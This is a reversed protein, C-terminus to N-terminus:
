LEEHIPKADNESDENKLEEQQQESDIDIPEEGLDFNLNNFDFEFNPPIEFNEKEEEIVEPTPTPTPTRIRRKQFRNVTNQLEAMRSYLDSSIWVPDEFPQKKAQEEQQSELWGELDRIEQVLEDREGEGVNRETVITSLIELVTDKWEHFASAVAPRMELESSRLQMRDGVEKLAGLKEQYEELSASAGDDYLWDGAELLGTSFLEREDETTVSKIGEEELADLMTYVYSELENKTAERLLRQEDEHNLKQLVDRSTLIDSESLEIINETQTYKLQLIRRKTTLQTEFEQEEVIEENEEEIEEQEQEEEEIVEGEETSGEEEDKEGEENEEEDENIEGEEAEEIIINDENESEIVNNDDVEVEKVIPVVEEVYEDIRIAAETLSIVGRADIDFRVKVTPEEALEINTFDPFGSIEFSGLKPSVGSSLIESDSYFTNCNFTDMALVNKNKHTRLRSAKHFLSDSEQQPLDYSIDIDRNITDKVVFASKKGATGTAAYLLAGSLASEDGNLHRGVREGFLDSLLQNIKTVRSGGGIVEIDVDDLSVVSEEFLQHIPKMVKEFLDACMEEFGDRTIITSFDRDNSLSEIRVRVEKNASLVEKAKRAEKELRALVRKNNSFDENFQKEAEEVLFRTLRYDFDRGGVDEWTTVNTIIKRNISKDRTTSKDISFRVLSASSHSHGVDFFITFNDYNEEGLLRSRLHQVAAIYIIILLFWIYIWNFLFIFCVQQEKM